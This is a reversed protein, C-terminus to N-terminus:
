RLRFTIPLVYKTRVPKGLRREPKWKPMKRVVRIAELSLREDPSRMVKITSISGDKEVIFSLVVRGQIGKQAASQPYKLNSVIFNMLATEGGPFEPQQVPKGEFIMDKGSAATDAKETKIASPNENALTMPAANLRFTIPLAYNVRVPKGRQKGPMWRPMMKVVRIAEQSLREDPSRMVKVNNISGDKEVAFSLTVRGQISDRAADAPYCLNDKIFKMLAAEGGPFEPQQEILGFIM